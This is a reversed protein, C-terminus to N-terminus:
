LRLKPLELTVNGITASPIGVSIGRCKDYREFTTLLNDRSQCSLWEDAPKDGRPGYVQSRPITYLAVDDANYAVCDYSDCKLHDFRRPARFPISTQAGLATTQPQDRLSAGSAPPATEIQKQASARIINQVEVAQLNLAPPPSKPPVAPKAAEDPWGSAPFALLAGILMWTRTKM